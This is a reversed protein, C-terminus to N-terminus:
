HQEALFASSRFLSAFGGFVLFARQTSPNKTYYDRAVLSDFVGKEMDAFTKYFEKKLSSLSVSEGEAFFTDILTKEYETNKNDTGKLRLITYDDKGKPLIGLIKKDSKVQDIRIYKRIALDFITAVVDDRELKATDITGSEAPPIINGKGDKPIDFNVAVPGFRNKRKKTLYWVFVIPALIFNGLVPISLLALVINRNHTAVPDQRILISKPFTGVPYGYVM